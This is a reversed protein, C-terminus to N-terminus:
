SRWTGVNFIADDVVTRVKENKPVEFEQLYSQGPWKEPLVIMPRPLTVM